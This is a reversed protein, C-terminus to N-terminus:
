TVPRFGVSIYLAHAEPAADDVRLGIGTPLASQAAQVLARGIGRRRMEPLVFLDTIFPGPPVDPWPPDEVTIIAGLLRDNVRALLSGAALWRGYEGNWAARVDDSAETLSMEEPTDLYTRWYALGVDELDVEGIPHLTLGAPVASRTDTPPDSIMLVNAM